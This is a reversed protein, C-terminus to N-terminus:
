SHQQSSTLEINEELSIKKAPLLFWKIQKIYKLEYNPVMVM